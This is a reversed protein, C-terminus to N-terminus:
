KEKHYEAFSRELSLGPQKKCKMCYYTTDKRIGKKPYHTGNKKKM